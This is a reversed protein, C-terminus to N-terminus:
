ILYLPYLIIINKNILARTDGLDTLHFLVYSYFNLLTM